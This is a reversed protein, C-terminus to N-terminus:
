KRVVRLTGPAPIEVEVLTVAGDESLTPEYRVWVCTNRQYRGLEQKDDWVSIYQITFDTNDDEFELREVYNAMQAVTGDYVDLSSFGLHEDLYVLIFRM